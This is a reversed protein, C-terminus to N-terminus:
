PKEISAAEFYNNGLPIQVFGKVNKRFAVPYATEYLFVIPAEAAYLEQIEKYIARRKAVDNEQLGVVYLDNVRQNNWGSHLSGINPFYAFYSTIQGPDAIDNTWAGTRMQYDEARYKATRTASDVPEIKLRVGVQAWMQQLTTLNNLDDQNGALSYCAIDIGGAFGAEALLAKAKAPDYAYLTQPHFLPTTSSMFSRTPKGLGRTTIAIIADKNAAYNLAQRVKVNSLPNATGNKLTPKVMLGIYSVRTSPWLEMRLNADDQLEKVRAYPIFESGHVEGAKLKLIRTADDPIIQFEIEDLYPLAQGDEGKRWYHPNRKLNMVQSRKWGTLMFPGTGVPKEAFAKAKEDMTAGPSADFLKEPMIGTNFTALAALLTPDPTKLTLVVTNGGTVEVASISAVMDNWAGNKPNRARDLSWKVDSALMPSGDSFKVGERLTLTLTKGDNSWAWATALGPQLGTGDATPFLLTDYISNMVWIDVNADNLVPDLFLSDALRAYILKGGRAPAAQGETSFGVLALSTIGATGALMARRSLGAHNEM